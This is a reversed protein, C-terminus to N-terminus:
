SDVLERQLRLIRFLTFASVVLLLGDLICLGIILDGNITM